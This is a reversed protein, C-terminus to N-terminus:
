PADLHPPWALMVAVTNMRWIDPSGCAHLTHTCAAPHLDNGGGGLKRKCGGGVEEAGEVMDRIRFWAAENARGAGCRAARGRGAVWSAADATEGDQEMAHRWRARMPTARM